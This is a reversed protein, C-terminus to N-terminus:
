SAELLFREIIKYIIINLYSKDFDNLLDYLEKYGDFFKSNSLLENISDVFLVREESYVDLTVIDILHSELGSYISYMRELNLDNNTM